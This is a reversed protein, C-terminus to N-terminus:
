IFSLSHHAARPGAIRHQFCYHFPRVGRTREILIGTSAYPNVYRQAEVTNKCLKGDSHIYQCRYACMGGGLKKKNAWWAASAADFDISEMQNPARITISFGKATKRKKNQRNKNQRKKTGNRSRMCMWSRKWEM